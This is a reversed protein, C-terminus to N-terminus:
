HRHYEHSRGRLVAVTQILSGDTGDLVDLKRNEGTDDFVVYVPLRQGSQLGKFRGGAVTIWRSFPLPFIPPYWSEIKGGPMRLEIEKSKQLNKLSLALVQRGGRGDIYLVTAAAGKRVMVVAHKYGPLHLNAFATGTALGALLCSVVRFTNKM